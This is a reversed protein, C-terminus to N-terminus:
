GTTQVSPRQWSVPGLVTPKYIPLDFVGVQIRDGYPAYGDLRHAMFHFLEAYEYDTENECHQGGDTVIDLGADKMDKVALAVSHGYLERMRYSPFESAHVGEGFVKGQMFVPRPYAGVLTTSLLVQQGRVKM